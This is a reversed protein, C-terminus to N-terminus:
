PDNRAMQEIVVIRVIAEVNEALQQQCNAKPGPENKADTRLTGRGRNQRLVTTTPIWHSIRSKSFGRRKVSLRRGPRHPRPSESARYSPKMARLAEVADAARTFTFDRLLSKLRNTTKGIGVYTRWRALRGLPLRPQDPDFEWPHFYLMAVAPRESRM